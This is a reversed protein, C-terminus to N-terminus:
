HIMPIYWRFIYMLSIALYCIMIIIKITKQRKEEDEGYMKESLLHYLYVMALVLYAFGVFVYINDLIFNM